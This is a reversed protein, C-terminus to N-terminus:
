GIGVCELCIRVAKSLTDQYSGQLIGLLLAAIGLLGLLLRAFFIGKRKEGGPMPIPPDPHM